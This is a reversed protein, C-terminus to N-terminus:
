PLLGPLCFVSTIICLTNGSVSYEVELCWSFANPLLFIQLRSGLSIKFCLAVSIHCLWSATELVTCPSPFSLYPFIHSLLEFLASWLCRSHLFLLCFLFSSFRCLCHYSLPCCFDGWLAIHSAYNPPFSVLECSLHSSPLASRHLDSRQVGRPQQM